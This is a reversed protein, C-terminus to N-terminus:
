MDKRLVIVHYGSADDGHRGRFVATLGCQKALEIYKEPTREAYNISSTREQGDSSTMALTARHHGNDNFTWSYHCRYTIDGHKNEYAQESIGTTAFHKWDRVNFIFHGGSKLVKALGSCCDLFYSDYDEIRVSDPFTYIGFIVLVVDFDHWDDRVKGLQVFSSQRYRSRDIGAKEGNAIAADLMAQSFDSAYVRFRKGVNKGLTGKHLVVTQLGLGCGADLIKAGNPVNDAIWQSIVPDNLDVAKLTEPSVLALYLDAIEEYPDVVTM